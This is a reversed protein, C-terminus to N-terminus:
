TNGSGRVKSHIEEYIKRFNPHKEDLYDAMDAVANAALIPGVVRGANKLAHKGMGKLLNSRAAGTLQVPKGGVWKPPAGHRLAHFANYGRAAKHHLATVGGTAAGATAALGVMGRRRQYTEENASTGGYEDVKVKQRWPGGMPPPTKGPDFEARPKPAEGVKGGTRLHAKTPDDDVPRTNVTPYQPTPVKKKPAPPATRTKRSRRPRSPAAPAKIGRARIDRADALDVDKKGMVRQANRYDSRSVPRRRAMQAKFGRGLEPQNDLLAIVNKRAM